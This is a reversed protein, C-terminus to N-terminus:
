ACLTVRRRQFTLKRGTRALTFPPLLRIRTQALQRREPLTVLAQDDAEATELGRRRSLTKTKRVSPVNRGM